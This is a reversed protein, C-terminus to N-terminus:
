VGSIYSVFRSKYLYGLRYYETIGAYFVSFSGSVEMSKATNRLFFSSLFCMAIVKINPESIM